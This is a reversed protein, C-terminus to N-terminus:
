FTVIENLLASGLLRSMASYNDQAMMKIELILKRGPTGHQICNLIGLGISTTNGKLAEEIKIILLTIKLPDSTFIKVPPNRPLTINM